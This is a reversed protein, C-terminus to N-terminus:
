PILLLKECGEHNLSFCEKVDLIVNKLWFM